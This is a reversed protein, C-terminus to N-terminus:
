RHAWPQPAPVFLVRELRLQERAEEALRLHALHIPDFTGGLMGVHRRAADAMTLSFIAERAGRDLRTM